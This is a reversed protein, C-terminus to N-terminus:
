YRQLGVWLDTIVECFCDGFEEVSWGELRVCISYSNKKETFERIKKKRDLVVLAVYNEM